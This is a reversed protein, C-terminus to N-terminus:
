PTTAEAAAAASYCFALGCGCRLGNIFLSNCHTASAGEQPNRYVAHYGPCLGHCPSGVVNQPKRGLRKKGSTDSHQIEYTSSRWSCGCSLRIMKNDRM